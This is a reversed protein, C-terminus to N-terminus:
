GRGCYVTYSVVWITDLLTMATIAFEDKGGEAPDIGIYIFRAPTTFRYRPRARLADVWASHFVSGGHDMEIGLNEAAFTAQDAQWLPRWINEREPNKWASRNNVRCTCVWPTETKAHYDCPEYTRKLPIIPRGDDTLMKIAQMFWSSQKGPTTALLTTVHDNLGVPLPGTKLMNGSIFSAEDIM